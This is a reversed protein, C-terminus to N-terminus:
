AFKAVVGDVDGYFRVDSMIHITGGKAEISMNGGAEIKLAVGPQSKFFVRQKDEEETGAGNDDYSIYGKMNVPITNDGTGSVGNYIYYAAGGNRGQGTAYFMGGVIDPSLIKTQGIYTSKIYNPVTADSGDRGDQGDVGNIGIFQYGPQWTIGGDWSERRYIDGEIYNTHWNQNDSSYQYQVVPETWIINGGLLISGLMQVNGEADVIYADNINLQGGEIEAGVIKSGKIDIGEIKGGYIEPAQIKKGNIFTGGLYSGNSLKVINTGALNAVVSIDSLEMDIDNLKPDSSAWTMQGGHITMNGQEDVTILGAINLTGNMIVNGEGDVLFADNININGGKLNKATINNAFISNFNEASLNQLVYDLEKRLMNYSDALIEFKQELTTANSYDPVPINIAM